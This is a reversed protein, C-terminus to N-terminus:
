GALTHLKCGSPRSHAVRKCATWEAHLRRQPRGEVSTLRGTSSISPAVSLDMDVKDTQLAENAHAIQM